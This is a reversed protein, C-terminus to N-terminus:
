PSVSMPLAQVGGFRLGIDSVKLLPSGEPVTSSNLTHQYARTLM